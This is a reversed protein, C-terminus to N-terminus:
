SNAICDNIVLQKGTENINVSQKKLKRRRNLGILTSKMESITHTLELIQMKNTKITEIRSKRIAMYENM